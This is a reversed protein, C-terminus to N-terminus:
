RRKNLEKFKKLSVKKNNNTPANEEFLKDLWSRKKQRGGGGREIRRREEQNRRRKRDWCRQCLTIGNCWAPSKISEGCEPCKMKRM